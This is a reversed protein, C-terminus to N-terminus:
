GSKPVCLPTLGEVVLMLGDDSLQAPVFYCRGQEVGRKECAFLLSCVIVNSTTPDAWESLIPAGM